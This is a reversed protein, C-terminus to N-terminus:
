ADYNKRAIEQGDENFFLWEKVEKGAKYFGRIKLNGNTHFVKYEGDELGKEYNLESQLEGGPYWSSWLGERQNNKYEGVIKIEGTKHYELYPGDVFEKETAVQTTETTAVDETKCSSFLGLFISFLIVTIRM